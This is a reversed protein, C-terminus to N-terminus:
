FGNDPSIPGIECSPVVIGRPLLRAGAVFMKRVAFTNRRTICGLPFKRASPPPIVKVAKSAPLFRWRWDM